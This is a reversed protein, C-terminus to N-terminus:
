RINDVTKVRDYTFSSTRSLVIRQTGIYDIVGEGTEKNIHDITSFDATHIYPRVLEVFSDTKKVVTAFSYYFYGLNIVDGLNLESATVKEPIRMDNVRKLYRVWGVPACILDIGDVSVIDGVSISYNRGPFIQDREKTRSPNNMLDFVEEAWDEPSFNEGYDKLEFHLEEFDKLFDRYIPSKPSFCGRTERLFKKPVYKLCIKM